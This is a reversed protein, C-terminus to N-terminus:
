VIDSGVFNVSKGSCGDRQEKSQPMNTKANEGKTFIPEKGVYRGVILIHLIGWRSRTSDGNVVGGLLLLGRRFNPENRGVFERLWSSRM